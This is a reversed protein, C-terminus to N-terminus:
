KGARFLFEKEEKSLSDYGSQNIKDLIEDVQQQNKDKVIIKSVNKAAPQRYNKHVKKFPTSKKRGILNAFFDLLKTFWLGLDNGQHLQKIYIYGFLAGGLHALHGGTNEKPLQILDVVLYFLGIHWLKLRGILMLRVEMLPAYTVTAFFIAMIAGSAGVMSVTTNALSPFIFYCVLYIIGSFIAGSFYLSLLQKQTFFTIFLRSAFNLVIMNFLLHMIGFHFFAYSIISWPKWLLDAPDSSLSVYQLFDIHVNFLGLFGFFLSPLVFLAVNWYILKNAVGGTRYQLKLDEIINM